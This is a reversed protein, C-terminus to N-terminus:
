NWKLVQSPEIGSALSQAGLMSDTGTASILGLPSADLAM